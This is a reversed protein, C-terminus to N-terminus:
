NNQLIRNGVSCDLCRKVDCYEKKLQIFAQSDYASGAVLGQEKWKKVIANQEPPISELLQIAREKYIDEGNHVGYAFLFPAITNILILDASGRGFTKKREASEEEFRYHTRWYGKLNIDFFSRLNQVKEEELIRSFLHNSNVIMEAFQAIRVTPFNPPRMRGFKWSSKNLPTLKYKKKLFNYEKQLSLYYVDGASEELFGSQGFLLAETQRIDQKHKSLIKLPLTKVLAGFTNSNQRMGFSRGLFHYFTEEWNNKTESLRKEIDGAKRELREVLLRDVWMWIRARQKLIEPLQKQCLMWHNNSLLSQYRKIYKPPIRQKLELTPIVEGTDRYVEKDHHYVVHLVTNLYAKDKQHKHAYWDSSKKHIEVSGAWLTEGIRIRANSFDPGSHHNHVGSHILDVSEDDVTKLDNFDFLKLKWVHHLFEEPFPINM